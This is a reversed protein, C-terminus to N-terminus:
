RLLFVDERILGLNLKDMSWVGFIINDPGEVLIINWRGLNHLMRGLHHDPSSHAEM